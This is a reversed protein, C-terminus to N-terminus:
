TVGQGRGQNELGIPRHPQPATFRAFTCPKDDRNTLNHVAGAPVIVCGGDTVTHPVGDIVAAGKGKEVHFFQDHTAHTETGIDQGPKLAMLVLQLHAGTYLVQWFDQNKDTLKEIDAAYGKRVTEKEMGADPQTRDSSLARSTQATNAAGDRICM